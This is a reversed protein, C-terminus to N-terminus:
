YPATGQKAGLLVTVVYGWRPHPTIGVAAYRHRADTLSLWHSRDGIIRDKEAFMRELMANPDRNGEINEGMNNYYYGSTDHGFSNTDALHQSWALAEAYKADDWQVEPVGEARRHANIEELKGRAVADLRPDVPPLDVEGGPSPAAGGADRSGTGVSGLDPTEGDGGLDGLSGSGTGDASGAGLAQLAAPNQLLSVVATLALGALFEQVPMGNITYGDLSPLPPLAPLAPVALQAQAQPAPAAGTAPAVTVALAAVAAAAVVRRRIPSKM